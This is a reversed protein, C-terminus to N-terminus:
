RAGVVDGGFADGGHEVLTDPLVAARLRGSGSSTTPNFISKM